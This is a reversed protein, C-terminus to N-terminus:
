MIPLKASSVMYPMNSSGVTRRLNNMMTVSDTRESQTLSRRKKNGNLTDEVSDKGDDSKRVDRDVRIIKGMAYAYQSQPRYAKVVCVCTFSLALLIYILTAM